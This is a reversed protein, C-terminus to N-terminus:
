PLAVGTGFLRDANTHALKRQVDAPFKGLFVRVFKITRDYVEPDQSYETSMETGITIRDPFQEVLPRFAEVSGALLTDYLRDFDSTFGTVAQREDSDQYKYLLGIMSSTDFMLHDADITYALNPHTRMLELIQSREREFDPRFAHLLFTTTPYAGILEGLGQLQGAKVHVMLALKKSQAFDVLARVKPDTYSAVPWDVMELEGIGRLVGAGLAKEGTEYADEYATVLEGDALMEGEEEGGIGTSWFPVIRGPYATLLEEITKFDGSDGFMGEEIGFYVISQGVGNRTAGAMYNAGDFESGLKEGTTYLPGNYAGPYTLEPLLESPNAVPAAPTSNRSLTSAEPESQDWWWYGAAALVAVLLVGVILGKRM